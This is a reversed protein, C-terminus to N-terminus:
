IGYDTSYMTKGLRSFKQARVLGRRGRGAPEHPEEPAELCQRCAAFGLVPFWATGLRQLGIKGSLLGRGIWALSGPYGRHLGCLIRALHHLADMSDCFRQGSRLRARM